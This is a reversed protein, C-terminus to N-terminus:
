RLYYESIQKLYYPQAQYANLSEQYTEETIAQWQTIEADYPTDWSETVARFWKSDTGDPDYKLCERLYLHSMISFFKHYEVGDQKETIGLINGEYGVQNALPYYTEYLAFGNELLYEAKVTATEDTLYLARFAGDYWIALDGYGNNDFDHLYSQVQKDPFQQQYYAAVDDLSSQGITIQDPVPQEATQLSFYRMPITITVYSDIISHYETETIPIYGAYNGNMTTRCWPADEEAMYQVGQEWILGTSNLRYFQYYQTVVSDSGRQAIVNDECLMYFILDDSSFIHCPGDNTQTYLDCIVTGDTIILEEAGDGDLDILAYGLSDLAAANQILFSIGEDICRTRDWGETVATVYKELIDGYTKPPINNEIADSEFWEPDVLTDPDPAQPTYSFTFTDAITELAARNMQQEGNSPDLINITTFYAEKDVIILAKEPNLALLATTGDQLTYNWQDYSEIDGVTLSVGDFATKMVCRYQFDIAYPWPANEALLTISGSMSFTGDRYYYGPSLTVQAAATDAAINAIGLSALMQESSNSLYLPGLLQLHYKACIEDIKEKMEQTYCTYSMYEIPEQFDDTDAQKLLTGDQDYTELFETWEKTAQYNPTGVFGQLSIVDSTVISGTPEEERAPNTYTYRGIKAEQLSMAVVITCGVLLLMLAIIAAILLSKKLPLRTRQPKVQSHADLIYRDKVSGITELLDMSNM